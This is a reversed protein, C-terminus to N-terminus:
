TGGTFTALNTSLNNWLVIPPLDDLPDANYVSSVNAPPANQLATRLERMSPDRSELHVFRNSSPTFLLRRYPGQRFRRVVAKKGKPWQIITKCEGCSGVRAGMSKVKDVSAKLHPYLDHHNFQDWENMPLCTTHGVSPSDACDSELIIETSESKANERDKGKGFGSALFM